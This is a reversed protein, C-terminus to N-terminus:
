AVELTVDQTPGDSRSIKKVRARFPAETSPRVDLVDGVQRRPDFLEVMARETVRLSSVRPLNEDAYKQAQARTTIFESSYYYTVRGYPSPSGDPNRTRLPGETIEAVALIQVTDDDTSSRVAIRNYVTDSSMARKLSVLTGGDGDTVADVPSAWAIPRQGFTGDPRMYPVADALELLDYLPDLREEEYAFSRPITTDPVERVIQLGTIRQAETLVSTRSPPSGPVDFRDKQVKRFRDKLELDVRSGIVIKQGGFEVLHDEADPVDDIRYWGMQVRETFTGARIIVAVSLESGFPALADDARRPSLSEAFDPTWVVTCSGSGQVLSSGDEDLKLDTIPVNTLRRVGDYYVDAVWQVDFSGSRLVEALDNSADRM